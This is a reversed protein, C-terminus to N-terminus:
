SHTALYLNRRLQRRSFAISLKNYRMAVRCSHKIKNFFREIRDHKSNTVFKSGSTGNPNLLKHRLDADPDRASRYDADV